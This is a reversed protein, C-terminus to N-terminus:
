KKGGCEGCIINGERNLKGYGIILIPRKCGDCIVEFKHKNKAEIRACDQCCRILVVKNDIEGKYGFEAEAGCRCIFAEAKMDELRVRSKILGAEKRLRTVEAQIRDLEEGHTILEEDDLCDNEKYGQKILELDAKYSSSTEDGHAAYQMIKISRWYDWLYSIEPTDSAWRNAKDDELAWNEIKEGFSLEPKHEIQEARQKIEEAHEIAFQDLKEIEKQRAELSYRDYSKYKEKNDMNPNYTAPRLLGDDYKVWMYNSYRKRELPSLVKTGYLDEPLGALEKYKAALQSLIKWWGKCENEIVQKAFDATTFKHQSSLTYLKNWIEKEKDVIEQVGPTSNIENREVETTHLPLLKEYPVCVFPYDEFKMIM